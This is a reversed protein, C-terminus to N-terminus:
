YIAPRKPHEFRALREAMDAIQEQQECVLVRLSEIM